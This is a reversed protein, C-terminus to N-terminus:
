LSSKSDQISSCIHAQHAQQSRSQTSCAFEPAPAFLICSSLDVSQCQLFWDLKKRLQDLEQENQPVASTGHMMLRPCTWPALLFRLEVGLSCWACWPSIVGCLLHFDLILCSKFLCRRTPSVLPLFWDFLQRSPELRNVVLGNSFQPLNVDKGSEERGDVMLLPLDTM